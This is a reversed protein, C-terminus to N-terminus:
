KKTLAERNNRLSTKVADWKEFTEPDLSEICMANIKDLLVQEMSLGSVETLQHAQEPLESPSLPHILWTQENGDLSSSGFEIRAWKSTGDLRRRFYRVAKDRLDDTSKELVRIYPAGTEFEVEISIRSDM